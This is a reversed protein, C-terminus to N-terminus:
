RHQYLARYLFTVIQGRTCTADPDFTTASTGTTIGSEAAWLVADYYFADENVDDFPNKTSAAKGGLYRNLMTVVQGRTCTVDPAFTDAGGYGNTIGNEVAWLVATKYFEGDAVDKFLIETSKPTPRGAARWLFTVIQGRTCVAEPEFTHESTGTTIGNEAAWLVADYYWQSSAVDYFQDTNKDSWASFIERLNEARQSIFVRLRETDENFSRGSHWLANDCAASNAIHNYYYSISHLAGNASVANKDALVVNTLLPYLNNEYETKVMARFDALDFLIAAYNTRKVAYLGDPTETFCFGANSWTVGFTLDFDWLPGVTMIDNGAEKYLFTSSQFSDMNKALENILYCHVLSELDVYDTYAKGTDPNVGNNYVADEYEQYLTAIYAMEEKSACEPSKVVIYQGRVTRFYCIEEVMREQFDMELLYGGTVDEPSAMGVCYTYTAGNSTVDTATPIDELDVGPNAEENLDEMDTIDVRGGGVEVKETLLYCGRYEGDYYLDVYKCEVNSEMGLANGLNLAITNRMMAPDYYNALLVWTKSKNDSNGTQLLDTKSDLKIQYPKKETAWTSNGRGKIQTLAGDYVISGDANQLIMSGKAKNSKDASSEVWVRGENVPDKSVLYMTGVNASFLVKVNYSSEGTGFKASFKLDYNGKSCLQNLNVVGGNVMQTSGAAGEILVTTAEPIDLYLAVADPSVTAPLVLTNTGNIDQVNIKTSETGNTGYAHLTNWDIETRDQAYTVFATNSYIAIPEQEMAVSVSGFASEEVSVTDEIEPEETAPVDDQYWTEETPETAVDTPLSYEETPATTEETTETAAETLAIAESEETLESEVESPVMPAEIPTTTEAVSEEPLTEVAIAEVTPETESAFAYMPLMSFVMCLALFGGIM